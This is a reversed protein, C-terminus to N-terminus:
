SENKIELYKRKLSEYLEFDKEYYRLVADKTTQDYYEDILAEKDLSKRFSAKYSPLAIKSKPPYEARFKALHEDLNEYLWYEGVTENGITLYECQRIQNNIDGEHFGEAFRARFENVSPAMHRRKKRYFYWSLQRDFPDRFCGIVRSARVEEESILENEILENLTLHIWRYGGNYKKRISMPVNKTDIGADGIATYKDTNTCYGKV